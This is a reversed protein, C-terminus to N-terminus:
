TPRMSRPLCLPLSSSGLGSTGNQGCIVSGHGMHREAPPLGRPGARHVSALCVRPVRPVPGGAVSALLEPPAHGPRLPAQGLAKGGASAGAPFGPPALQGREDPSRRQGGAGAPGGAALLAEIPTTPPSRLEVNRPCAEHVIERPAGEGEETILVNILLKRNEADAFGEVVGKTGKKNDMRVGSPNIAWTMRRTM